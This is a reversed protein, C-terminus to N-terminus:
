FFCGPPSNVGLVRLTFSDGYKAAHNDFFKIPNAILQLTQILSNIM